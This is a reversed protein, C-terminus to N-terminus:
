KKKTATKTTAAPATAPEKAATSAKASGEEVVGLDVLEKARKDSVEMVTGITIVGNFSAREGESMRKEMSKMSAPVQGGFEKIEDASGIFTSTVKVTAM